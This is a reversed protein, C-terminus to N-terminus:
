IEQLERKFEVSSCIALIMSRKKQAAVDNIAILM